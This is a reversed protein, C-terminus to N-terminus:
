YRGTTACCLIKRLLAFRRGCRRRPTLSHALSRRCAPCISWRKPNPRLRGCRRNLRRWVTRRACRWASITASYRAAAAEPANRGSLCRDGGGAPWLREACSGAGSAGRRKAPASSARRSGNAGCGRASQACDPCQCRTLQFDAVPKLGIAQSLLTDAISPRGAQLALAGLAHLADAHRPMAAIVQRYIQEAEALRGTM